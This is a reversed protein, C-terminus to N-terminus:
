RCEPGECRRLAKLRDKLMGKVSAFEPVSAVNQLQFPDAALDYLEKEGTNNKIYVYRQTRVGSYEEEGDLREILIDRGARYQPNRAIKRLSVGDQKLRPRVGAIDLITPVIDINGVVQNATHGVPFAPGRVILPVHTSDEYAFKKRHLRHEGLLFGNDTTYFITTNALQGTRELTALLSGVAEDVALLSRRRNLFKRGLREVDNQGYASRSAVFKPKDSVDAENFSPKGIDLQGVDANEHRPAPRPGHTGDGQEGGEEHPANPAFQLFFPESDAAFETILRNLVSSEVDAQYDGPAEGFHRIRGNANLDWDYMRYASKDVPAYWEDWGEPVEEPDDRGYGNLFKGVYATQYGSKELWVNVARNQKFVKFGGHPGSNDVVKHNHAYQGTLMSVRSPCCLPLTAIYNAFTTGQDALLQNTRTMLEQDDRQQDDTVIVIINPRGSVAAAAEPQGAPLALALLACLAALAAAVLPVLRRMTIDHGTNVRVDFTSVPAAM